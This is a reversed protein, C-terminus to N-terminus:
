PWAPPPTLYSCGCGLREGLVLEGIDQLVMDNGLNGEALIQAIAHRHLSELASLELDHKHSVFDHDISGINDFSIHGDGTTDNM